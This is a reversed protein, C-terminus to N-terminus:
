RYVLPQRIPYNDYNHVLSRIAVRAVVSSQLRGARLSGEVALSVCLQLLQRQVEPLVVLAKRPCHLRVVFVLAAFAVVVM